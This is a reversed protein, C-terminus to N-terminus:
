IGYLGSEEVEDTMRKKEYKRNKGQKELERAPVIVDRIAYEINSAQSSVPFKDM